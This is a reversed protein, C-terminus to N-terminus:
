LATAILATAGAGDMPGVPAAAGEADVQILAHEDAEVRPAALLSVHDVQPRRQVLEVQAAGRQIQDPREVQLRRWRAPWLLPV